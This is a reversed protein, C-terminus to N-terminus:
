FMAYSCLQLHAYACFFCFLHIFTQTRLIGRMNEKHM